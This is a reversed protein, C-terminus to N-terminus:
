GTIRRKVFRKFLRCPPTSFHPWPSKDVRTSTLPLSSTANRASRKLVAALRMSANTADCLDSNALADCSSREGKVRMRMLKSNISPPVFEGACARKFSSIARLMLSSSVKIASIKNALRKSEADASTPVKSFTSKIPMAASSHARVPASKSTCSVVCTVTGPTGLNNRRTM